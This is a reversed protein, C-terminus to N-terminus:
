GGLWSRARRRAQGLRARVAPARRGLLLRASRGAVKRAVLKPREQWEVEPPGLPTVGATGPGGEV